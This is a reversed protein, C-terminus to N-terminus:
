CGEVERHRLVAPQVTAPVDSSMRVSRRFVWDSQKLLALCQWAPCRTGDSTPRRHKSSAQIRRGAFTFSYWWVAFQKLKGTKLDKYSPKYVSM